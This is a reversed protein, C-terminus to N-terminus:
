QNSDGDGYFSTYYLNHKTVSQKFIKEAGVTKMAPSSGKYNLGCKHAANWKHYAQPDIAKVAQMKTCAKCNKSLVATDLVKSIVGNLSTFRKRQWTGDVSVGVDTTEAAGRLKSATVSM